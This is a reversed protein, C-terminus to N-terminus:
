NLILRVKSSMPQFHILQTHTRCKNTNESHLCLVAFVNNVKLKKKQLYTLKYLFNILINRNDQNDRYLSM